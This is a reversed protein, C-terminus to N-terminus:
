NVKKPSKRRPSVEIEDCVPFVIGMHLAAATNLVTRMSPMSELGEVRRLTSRNISIFDSFTDKNLKLERRLEGSIILDALQGVSYRRKESIVRKIEDNM